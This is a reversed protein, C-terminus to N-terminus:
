LRHEAALSNVVILFRCAAVLSYGGNAAALSLGSLAVFVWRLGFICCIFKFTHLAIANFPFFFFFALFRGERFLCIHNWPNQSKGRIQTWFSSTDLPAAMM